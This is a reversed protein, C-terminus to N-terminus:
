GWVRKIFETANQHSLKSATDVSFRREVEEMIAPYGTASEHGSHYFPVRTQDPHEGTFFFDAGMCIANEGGLELGHQIHDYMAEPRDDNLFARLFNVGIIGGRKIIEKAVDDPLNRLHDFVPRYNSHSALIPIDLSHRDIHELIGRALADSTHSFDICIKRGNIYDLLAKGDEKLGAESYNGGGFRNESHHTMSIYLVRETNSIIQELRKFGEDLPEDEECFGSGSEIAAVLGIKTLHPVDDIHTPTILEVQQEYKSFLEKFIRSQNLGMGASGKKTATYIALVQLKVNGEELAPFSCGLADKRQPDPNPASNLYSLLDCHMDIIPYPM